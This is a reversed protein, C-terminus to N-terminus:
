SLLAHFDDKGYIRGFELFTRREPAAFEVSYNPVEGMCTLPANDKESTWANVINKCALANCVLIPVDEGILHQQKSKETGSSGKEGGTGHRYHM